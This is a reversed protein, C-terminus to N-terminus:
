QKYGKTEVTSVAKLIVKSLDFAMSDIDESNALLDNKVEILVNLLGKEAAHKNVTHMVNDNTGYPSNFEAKLQTLELAAQMLPKALREDKDHLIGLEVSRVEDFYVPTFSHITIFAPQNSIEAQSKVVKSVMEHFPEYVETVRQKFEVETLNQNGPVDYIESSSPTGAGSEPSRNCDYVLRSIRSAVLPADILESLKCALDYAGIDWAAHSDMAEKTLGLGQLSEPIYKSAHECVLVIPAKGEPNYLEVVKKEHAQLFNTKTQQTM